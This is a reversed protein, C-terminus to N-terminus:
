YGFRRLQTEDERWKEKVKVFIELYVQHGLFEEIDKRSAIGLSKIKEGGKGIIISKQSQRNVFIIARISAFPLGDLEKEVFDEIFVEASYPIESKYQDLIHSRIIDSVFFRENQDSLQDKPYYAPHFPMMQMLDVLIPSVEDPHIASIFYEKDWQIEEPMNFPFSQDKFLDKKNIVLLKPVDIDALIKLIAENWPEPDNVEIIYIIADADEFSQFIYTNMREQMKYAPADIIGPTDSFVIQHDDDNWIGFIRRRTTQAKKHTISLKTGILGNLLTSKGANPKGIINVFGSKHEM